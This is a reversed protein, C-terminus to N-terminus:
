RNNRIMEWFRQAQSTTLDGLNSVNFFEMMDELPSACGRQEEAIRNIYDWKSDSHEAQEM